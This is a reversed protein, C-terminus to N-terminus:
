RFDGNRLHERFTEKIYGVTEDIVGNKTIAKIIANATKTEMKYKNNYDHCKM